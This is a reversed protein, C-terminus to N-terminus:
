AINYYSSENSVKPTIEEEELDEADDSDDSSQDSEDDKKSM